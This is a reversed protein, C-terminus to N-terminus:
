FAPRRTHRKKATKKTKSRRRESEKKNESKRRKGRRTRVAGRPMLMSGALINNVGVGGEGDGRTQWCRYHQTSNEGVRERKEPSSQKGDKGAYHTTKRETGRDPEGAATTRLQHQKADAKM